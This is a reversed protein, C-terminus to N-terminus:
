DPNINHKRVINSWKAVDERLMDAFQEPSSGVPIVGLEAFKETLEPLRVIKVLEEHMRNIIPRPTAAPALLGYYTAAQFGPFGSEHMTPLDPLVPLRTLSAVGIARLKGAKLHSAVPGVNVFQLDAEGALM